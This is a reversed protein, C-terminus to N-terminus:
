LLRSKKVSIDAKVIPRYVGSFVERRAGALGDMRDGTLFSSLRVESLWAEDEQSKAADIVERILVVLGTNPAM